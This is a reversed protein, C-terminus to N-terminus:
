FPMDSLAESEVGGLDQAADVLDDHAATEIDVRKALNGLASLGFAEKLQALTTKEGRQIVPVYYVGKDDAVKKTSFVITYARKNAKALTILQRASQTGTRKLSVVFPMTAGADMMGVNYGKACPPPTGDDGFKSLPCNACEHGITVGYVDVYVDVFEARPTLGDDSACILKSERNFEPPFAVRFKALALLVGVVSPSYEGTVTNYYEGIHKDGDPLDSQAQVLILRPIAMDERGMEDLGDIDVGALALWQQEEPAESLAALKEQVTLATHRLELITTNGM